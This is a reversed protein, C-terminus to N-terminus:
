IETEIGDYAAVAGPFVAQAQSIYDQPNPMAPSYHTLWLRKVGGERAIRACDEFIMHGKEQSKEKMSHDGYMGEGIFLDAEAVFGAMEPVPLTDTCYAAKLSPRRGDLVMDPTIVRGEWEVSKGQHLLRYFTKPIGLAAAKDPNFIPKRHVVVSYGLCTIGHRLPLSRIEWGGQCLQSPQRSPLEVFEVPFPLRPCLIMLHSVISRLGPPGAMLLPSTKGGNGLTLLLGPLGAIHDAHFHTILLVDLRSIRRQACRLAIQTGEGCDILLASGDLEMWCCTLWRDKLPMMGGTGPLCIKLM